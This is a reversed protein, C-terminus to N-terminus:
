MVTNLVNKLLSSLINDILKTALLERSVNHVHKSSLKKILRSNGETERHTDERRPREFEQLVCTCAFYLQCPIGGKGEETGPFLKSLTAHTAGKEPM